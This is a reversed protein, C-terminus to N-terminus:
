EGITSAITADTDIETTVMAIVAVEIMLFKIAGIKDVGELADFEKLLKNTKSGRAIADMFEIVEGLPLGKVRKIFLQARETAVTDLGSVQLATQVKARAAQARAFLQYQQPEMTFEDEIEFEDANGM